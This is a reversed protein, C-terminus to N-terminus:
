AAALRLVRAGGAGGTALAAHVAPLAAALREELQWPPNAIVIGSGNLGVHTDEPFLALEVAMLEPVRAALRAHFRAVTRAEKIPYWAAFVGVPWRGVAADLADAVADFEQEQSEYPPDILVLGRREKPPLLGKLAEYGDRQHIAFRRDGAFEARLGEAERRELECLAARDGPRLLMAAIAPSGPYAVIRGTNAPDFSRVM